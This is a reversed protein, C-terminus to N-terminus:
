VADAIEDNERSEQYIAADRLSLDASQGAFKPAREWPMVLATSPWHIGVLLPRYAPAAELGHDKRMKQFGNIFRHYRASAAEWDNNWGHSFIVVHSFNGSAVDSLLNERTKPATCKGSKDFPLMYWPATSGNGLDVQWYPGGPLNDSV